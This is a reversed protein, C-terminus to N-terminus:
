SFNHFPWYNMNLKKYFQPLEMSVGMDNSEYPLWYIFGTEKVKQISDKERQSLELESLNRSLYADERIDKSPMRHKLDSHVKTDETAFIKSLQKSGGISRLASIDAGILTVGTLDALNISRVAGFANSIPQNLTIYDLRAGKLNARTFNSYNLLCEYFIGGEFNADMCVSGELRCRTLDAAKFYGNSFNVGDFNCGRLDLRWNFKTVLTATEYVKGLTNIAMQLDIRPIFRTKIDETPELSECPFNTRIYTALLRSVRPAAMPNEEVLGEFRDIAAARKVLDDELERVIVEVNDDSRIARSIERRSALAIAAAEFKDNFLSEKSITTQKSLEFSRWIVFPAGILGVLVLGINRIASGDIDAQYKGIHLLAGIFNILSSVLSLIFLGILIFILVGLIYGLWRADQFNIERKYGLWEIFSFSEEKNKRM